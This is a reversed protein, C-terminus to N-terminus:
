RAYKARQLAEAVERDAMALVGGTEDIAYFIGGTPNASFLKYRPAPVVTLVDGTQVDAVGLHNDPGRKEVYIVHKPTSTLVQHGPLKWLTKQTGLDM